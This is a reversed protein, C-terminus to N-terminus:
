GHIAKRLPEIYTYDGSILKNYKEGNSTNKLYFVPRIIRGSDSFVHFDNTKIDWSLSTTINIFSNLKLLKMYKLLLKPSKHLGILRGNLFVNTYISLDYTTTNKLIILEADIIDICEEFTKKKPLRKRKNNPM